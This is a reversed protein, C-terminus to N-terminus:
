DLCGPCGPCGPSAPCPDEDPPSYLRQAEDRRPVAARRPGSVGLGQGCLQDQDSDPPAVSSSAGGCPRLDPSSTLLHSSSFILLHSFSFILLHSPSFTFSVKVLSEKTLDYYDELHCLTNHISNTESIDRDTHQRLAEWAERWVRIALPYGFPGCPLNIQLVPTICPCGTRIATCLQEEQLVRYHSASTQYPSICCEANVFSHVCSM